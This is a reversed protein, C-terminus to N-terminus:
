PRSIPQHSKEISWEEIYKGSACSIKKWTVVGQKNFLASATGLHDCLYYRIRKDNGTQERQAKVTQELLRLQENIFHKAQPQMGVNEIRETILANAAPMDTMVSRLADRAIGQPTQAILEQLLDPQAKQTQRLQVM